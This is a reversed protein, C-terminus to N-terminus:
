LSKNLINKYHINPLAYIELKTTIIGSHLSLGSAFGLSELMCFKNNSNTFSGGLRNTDMALGLISVTNRIIM